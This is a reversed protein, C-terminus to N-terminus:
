VETLIKNLELEAKAREEFAENIQEGLNKWEDWLFERLRKHNEYVALKHKLRKKAVKVECKAKAIRKGLEFDFTDAPNCKAVGRVTRGAYHTVAVVVDKENTYYDYHPEFSKKM